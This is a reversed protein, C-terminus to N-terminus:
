FYKYFLFVSSIWWNLIVNVMTYQVRICRAIKKLKCFGEPGYEKVDANICKNKINEVLEPRDEFKEAYEAVM